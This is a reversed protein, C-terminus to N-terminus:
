GILLRFIQLAVGDIVSILVGMVLSILIVLGTKRLLTPRTPWSIKKFEAKVGDFFGTKKVTKAKEDAM